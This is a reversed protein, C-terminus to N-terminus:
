FLDLCTSKLTTKLHLSDLTLPLLISIYHSVVHATGNENETDTDRIDTDSNAKYHSDLELDNMRSDLSLSAFIEGLIEATTRWRGM